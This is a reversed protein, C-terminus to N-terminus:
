GIILLHQISKSEAIGLNSRKVRGGRGSQDLGSKERMQNVM